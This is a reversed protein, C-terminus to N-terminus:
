FKDAIAIIALWAGLLIMMAFLIGFMVIMSKFGFELKHTMLDVFLQGCNGYYRSDRPNYSWCCACMLNNM